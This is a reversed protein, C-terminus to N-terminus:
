ALSVMFQLPLVMRLVVREGDEGDEGDDAQDCNWHRIVQLVKPGLLVNRKVGRNVELGSARRWIGQSPPGLGHTRGRSWGAAQQLWRTLGQRWRSIQLRSRERCAREERALLTRTERTHVVAKQGM